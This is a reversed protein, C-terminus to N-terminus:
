LHCSLGTQCIPQNKYSNGYPLLPCPLTLTSNFETVCHLRAEKDHFPKSRITLCGLDVTDQLVPPVRLAQLKQFADRAVKYAELNKGQKALAYLTNSDFTLSFRLNAAM